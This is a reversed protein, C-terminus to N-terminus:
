AAERIREGQANGFMLFGYFYIKFSDWGGEVPDTVRRHKFEQARLIEQYAIEFLEKDKVFRPDTVPFVVQGVEEGKLYLRVVHPQKGRDGIRNM